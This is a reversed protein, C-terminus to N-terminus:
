VEIYNHNCANLLRDMLAFGLNKNETGEILIIEPNSKEAKHLNTFIKKSVETLNSKSGIDIVKNNKYDNVNESFSLIVVNKYKKSISIIENIMKQTDNSYVLISKVNLQYHKLNSSPLQAKEIIVNGSIQKIQEPTISGPRLIHPIDDIVKVITSEIGLNTMGGNIIFDVKDSFDELIDELKTGSPKGSINASPAAIPVKAYSLLKQTIESDPMRVGITDLGATLINPVISQKKLIITFPGPFFAEMLKYEVDNIDKAISDVMKIGDVLLNIPNSFNRGKIEYLKKVADPDLGNTGIGYVTETPFLVTKGSKLELSIEKLKEENISHRIDLYNKM